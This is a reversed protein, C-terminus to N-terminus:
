QGHESWAEPTYTKLGLAHIAASEIHENITSYVLRHQKLMSIGEFEPSVVVAQFHVGDHSTVEVHTCTLGEAIYQEIMESTIM